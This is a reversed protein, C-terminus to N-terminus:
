NQKLAYRHCLDGLSVMILFLRSFIPKKEKELSKEERVGYGHMLHVNKKM